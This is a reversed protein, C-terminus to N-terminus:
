VGSNSAQIVDNNEKKNMMKYLLIVVFLSTIGAVLKGIIMSIVYDPNFSMTFALHSGFVYAASVSFASNLMAGKEDMDKMNGFAAASTALMSLLGVTSVTNIGVKKGIQGMPKHLLKSLVHVLPFAGSLVMAASACIDFGESIPATYPIDIGTLAEFVGIALGVIIFIKIIFGFGKFVKLCIKPILFLAVAILVAFILLPILSALLDKLPLACILGSVLCGIPTTVIGCLLGLMLSDHKEKPVVGMAFPLTFSITVGMMSSVILGNFYGVQENSAFEMALPAGGMDNALIMTPIVSPEIPIIKTFVDIAPRLVHAIVPALVIMGIMSLAMTGLLMFGREFQKGLGLKNGIILDAAGLLSFCLMVITIPSMDKNM